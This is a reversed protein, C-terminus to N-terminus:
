EIAAWTRRNVIASVQGQAIGFMEVIERQLMTGALARITRVQENTLNAM